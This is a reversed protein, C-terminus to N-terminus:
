GAICISWQKRSVATAWRKRENRWPLLTRQAFVSHWSATHRGRVDAASIPGRESALPEPNDMFSAIADGVTALPTFDPALITTIFCAAKLANCAIVVWLLTLYIRVECHEETRQALCYEAEQKANHYFSPFLFEDGPTFDYLGRVRNTHNVPTVFLVDGWASHFVSSEYIGVCEDVSLKELLEASNHLAELRPLVFSDPPYLIWFIDHPKMGARGKWRDQLFEETVSAAIYTNASIAGFVVSNYSCLDNAPHIILSFRKQLVECVVSSTTCLQCTSNVLNPCAMTCDEVSQTYEPHWHEDMQGCCPSERHRKSDAFLAVPQLQQKRRAPGNVLYKHRPSEM